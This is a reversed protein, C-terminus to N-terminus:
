PNAVKIPWIIVPPSKINIKVLGGEARITYFHSIKSSGYALYLELFGM